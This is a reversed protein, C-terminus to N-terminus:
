CRGEARVVVSAGNQGGFGVTLALMAPRELPAPGDRLYRLGFGPDLPGRSAVPLLMGEELCQVAHVLGLISTSALAHGIAPEWTTVPVREAAPGLAARLARSQMRDYVPSGTATFTVGGVDGPALGAEGLAFGIARAM